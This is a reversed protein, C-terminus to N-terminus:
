VQKKAELEVFVKDVMRRQLAPDAMQGVVKETVRMSIDLVEQRLEKIAKAKAQTIVEEARKILAEGQERATRIIEKRARIGDQTAQRLLEQTQDGLKAMQEAYAEKKSEMDRRADSAAKLDGRIKDIRAQFMATLPKYAILWLLFLGILFTILQAVIIPLDITLM